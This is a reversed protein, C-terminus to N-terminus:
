AKFQMSAAWTSFWEWTKGGTRYKNFREVTFGAIEVDAAKDLKKKLLRVFGEYVLQAYDPQNPLGGQFSDQIKAKKFEAFTVDATSSLVEHWAELCLAAIKDATLLGAAAAAIAETAAAPGRRVTGRKAAAKKTARGM